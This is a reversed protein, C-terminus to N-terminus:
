TFPLPHPVTIGNVFERLPACVFEVNVDLNRLYLFFEDRVESDLCDRM